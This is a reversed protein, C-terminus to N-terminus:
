AAPAPASARAPSPPPARPPAGPAGGGLGRRPAPGVGGLAGVVAALVPEIGAELSRAVIASIAVVLITGVVLGAAQRGVRGHRSGLGGIALAVLTVPLGLVFLVASFARPRGAEERQDRIQDAVEVKKKIRELAVLPDAEEP